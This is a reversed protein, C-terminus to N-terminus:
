GVAVAKAADSKGIRRRLREFDRRSMLLSKACPELRIGMGEAYGKVYKPDAGLIEGAQRLSVVTTIARGEWARTDWTRSVSVVISRDDRRTLARSTIKDFRVTDIHSTNGYIM